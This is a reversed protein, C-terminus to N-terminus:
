NEGCIIEEIKEQISNEYYILPALICFASVFGVNAIFLRWYVKRKALQHYAKASVRSEKPPADVLEQMAPFMRALSIYLFMGTLAAFFKAKVAAKIHMNRLLMAICVGPYIASVSTLVLVSEWFHSLGSQMLIVANGLKQPIMKLLMAFLVSFGAGIDDQLTLTFAMGEIFCEFSTTLLIVWADTDILKWDQAKLGSTNEKAIRRRPKRDTVNAGLGVSNNIKVTSRRDLRKYNSGSNYEKSFISQIIKQVDYVFIFFFYSVTM